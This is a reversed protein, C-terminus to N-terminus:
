PVIEFEESSFEELITHLPNTQYFVRYHVKYKGPVAQPPIPVFIDYDAYCGKGLVEYSDPAFIETRESVISRTVRGPASTHKCFDAVLHIPEKKSVVKNTVKIPNANVTLADQGTFSWSLMVFIGVSIVGLVFYVSGNIIRTRLPLEKYLKKTM